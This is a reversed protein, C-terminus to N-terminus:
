EAEASMATMGAMDGQMRAYAEGYAGYTVITAAMMRRKADDLPAIARAPRGGWLWGAALRQGPETFAGAALLVDEEVVTGPAIRSGIGILARPGIACARM